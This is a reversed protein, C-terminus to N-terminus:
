RDRAYPNEVYACADSLRRLLGLSGLRMELRRANDEFSKQDSQGQGIFSSAQRHGVILGYREYITELFQQFEMRRPVNAFVLSRLIQDNPAYRVQRTGRRTALGIESAYRGHVNALHQNHRKLAAGWLAARLSAPNEPSSYDNLEADPWCVKGRLVRCADEFPAPGSIAEQWERTGDVTEKLYCEIAERSSLRNAEYTDTSLDRVTTRRPAM